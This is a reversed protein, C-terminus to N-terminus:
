VKKEDGPIDINTMMSLYSINATNRKICESKWEEKTYTKEEYEWEKHSGIFDQVIIRHINRREYVTTESSIIDIMKPEESQSGHVIKWNTM